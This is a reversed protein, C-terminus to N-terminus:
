GEPWTEEALLVQSAALAGLGTPPGFAPFGPSGPPRQSSLCTGTCGSGPTPLILVHHRTPELRTRPLKQPTTSDEFDMTIAERYSLAIM